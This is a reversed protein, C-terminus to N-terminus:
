GYNTIWEIGQTRAADIASDQTLYGGRAVAIVRPRTPWVQKCIVLSPAFRGGDVPNAACVLEYDLHRFTRTDEM